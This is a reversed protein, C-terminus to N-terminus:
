GTWGELYFDRRMDRIGTCVFRVSPLDNNEVFLFELHGFVILGSPDLDTDAREPLDLELEWDGTFAPHVIGWRREGTLDVIVSADDVPYGARLESVLRDLLRSDADHLRRMMQRLNEEGEASYRIPIRDVDM